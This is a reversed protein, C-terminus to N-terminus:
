PISFSHSADPAGTHCLCSRSSCAWGSGLISLCVLSLTPLTVPPTKLATGPSLLCLFDRLLPWFSPPPFSSFEQAGLWLLFRLSSLPHFTIGQWHVSPFITSSRSLPTCLQLQHHLHHPLLSDQILSPTLQTFRPCSYPYHIQFFHLWSVLFPRRRRSSTCGAYHPENTGSFAEYILVMYIKRCSYM